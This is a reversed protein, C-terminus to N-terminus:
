DFEHDPQVPLLNLDQLTKFLNKEKSSKYLYFLAVM